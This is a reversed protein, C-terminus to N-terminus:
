ASHAFVNNRTRSPSVYADHHEAVRSLLDPHVESPAFCKNSLNFLQVVEIHMSTDVVFNLDDITDTIIGAQYSNHTSLFRVCTNIVKNHLDNGRFEKRWNEIQRRPVWIYELVNYPLPEKSSGRTVEGGAEREEDALSSKMKFVCAKLDANEVQLRKILVDQSSEDSSRATNERQLSRTGTRPTSSRRTSQRRKPTSRRPSTCKAFQPSPVPTISVDTMNKVRAPPTVSGRRATSVSSRRRPTAPQVPEPPAAQQARERQLRNKQETQWDFVKSRVNAALTVGDVHVKEFPSAEPIGNNIHTPMPSWHAEKYKMPSSNSEMRCFTDQKRAEDIERLINYKPDISSALKTGSRSRVPPPAEGFGTSPILTNTTFGLEKQRLPSGWRSKQEEQERYRQKEIERPQAVSMRVQDHTRNDTTMPEKLRRLERIDPPTGFASRDGCRVPMSSYRTFRERRDNNHAEWSKQNAKRQEEEKDREQKRQRTYKRGGFSRSRNTLM